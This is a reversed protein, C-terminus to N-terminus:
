VRVGSGSLVPTPIFCWNLNYPKFTMLNYPSVMLIANCLWLTTLHSRAYRMVFGMLNYPSVALKEIVLNYPKM